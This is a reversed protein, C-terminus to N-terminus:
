PVVTGKNGLKSGRDISGVRSNSVVILLDLLSNVITNFDHLIVSQCSLRDLCPVSVATASLFRFVINSERFKLRRM